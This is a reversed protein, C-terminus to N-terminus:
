GHNTNINNYGPVTTAAPKSVTILAIAVEVSSPSIVSPKVAFRAIGPLPPLTVDGVKILTSCNLQLFVHVSVVLKNGMVAM